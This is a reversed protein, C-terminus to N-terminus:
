DLRLVLSKLSMAPLSGTWSTGPHWARSLDLRRRVLSQRVPDRDSQQRPRERRLQHVPNDLLAPLGPLAIPQKRGPHHDVEDQGHAQEGPLTILLDRPQQGLTERPGPAPRPRPLHRRGRRDGPGPDLESRLRQLRQELLGGLGHRGFGGDTGPVATPTQHRDVPGREVHRVALLVVCPETAGRGVPALPGGERLHPHHCQGLAARVGDGVRGQPREGGGLGHDRPLQESGKSGTVQQHGVPAEGARVLPPGRRGAASVQQPADLGAGHQGHAPFKGVAGVQGVDHGGAVVAPAGVGGHHPDDLVGQVVVAARLM